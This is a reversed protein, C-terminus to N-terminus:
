PTALAAEVEQELERGMPPGYGRHLALLRGDRGILATVPAMVVKMYQFAASGQPDRLVPFGLHLDRAAERVAGDSDADDISVALVVLDPHRARIASLEPLEQRCPGCFSAWFDVVVVKGAYASLEYRGGDIAPLAIDPAREGVTAWRSSGDAPQAPFSHRATACGLVGLLPLARFAISLHFGTSSTM